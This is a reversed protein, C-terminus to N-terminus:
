FTPSLFYPKKSELYRVQLFLAKQFSVVFLRVGFNRFTQEPTAEWLSTRDRGVSRVAAAVNKVNNRVFWM